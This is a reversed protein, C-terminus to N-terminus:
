EKYTDRNSQLNIKWAPRKKEMHSRGQYKKKEVANLRQLVM